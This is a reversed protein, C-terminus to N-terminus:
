RPANAASDSQQQAAADEAPKGACVRPDAHDATQCDIVLRKSEWQGNQQECYGIELTSVQRKEDLEMRLQAIDTLDLAAMRTYEEGCFFSSRWGQGDGQWGAIWREKEYLRQVWGGAPLAIGHISSGPQLLCHELRVAGNELKAMVTDRCLWGDIHQPHTLFLTPKDNHWELGILSFENLWVPQLAYARAIFDPENAWHFTTSGAPFWVGSLSFPATATASAPEEPTTRRPEKQGCGSLALVSLLAAICLWRALRATSGHPIDRTQM